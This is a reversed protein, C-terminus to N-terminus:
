STKVATGSCTVMLMSSGGNSISEYDLDIGIVANAGQNKAKEEMERMATERAEQLSGEYSKSRGGFFDSFSAFLDKFFNAGLITEGSVVGLYETIEQNALQNTTSLIM